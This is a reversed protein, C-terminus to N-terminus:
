FVFIQITAPAAAGLICAIGPGVLGMGIEEGNRFAIGAKIAVMFLGVVAAATVLIFLVFWLRGLGTSLETPIPVSNDRTPVQFKPPPPPTTVTPLLWPFLSFTLSLPM